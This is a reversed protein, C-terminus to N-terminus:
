TGYNEEALQTAEPWRLINQGWEWEVRFKIGRASLYWAVLCEISCGAPANCQPTTPGWPLIECGAFDRLAPRSTNGALDVMQPFSAFMDLWHQM